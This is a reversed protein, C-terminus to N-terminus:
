RKPVIDVEVILSESSLKEMDSILGTPNKLLGAPDYVLCVLNKCDPHCRFILFAGFLM